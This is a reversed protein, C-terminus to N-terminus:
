SLGSFLDDIANKKRKTTKPKAPKKGKTSREASLHSPEPLVDRQIREGRDEVSAPAGAKKSTLRSRSKLKRDAGTAKALRALAALLAIGLTAFQNEAVVTSFARDRNAGTEGLDRFSSVPLMATHSAHGSAAPLARGRGLGVIGSGVHYAKFNVAMEVMQSEPTSKQQSSLHSATCCSSGFNGPPGHRYSLQFIQLRPFNLNAPEVTPIYENVNVILM